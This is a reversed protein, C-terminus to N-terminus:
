ARWDVYTENALAWGLEAVVDERLEGVWQVGAVCRRFVVWPQEVGMDFCLTELVIEEAILVEKEWQRYQKSPPVDNEPTPNWAASEANEFKSLCSNVIFRLKLPEEEIKSALFLIAPAVM